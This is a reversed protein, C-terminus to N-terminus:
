RRQHGVEDVSNACLQFDADALQSGDDALELLELPRGRWSSAAPVVPSAAGGVALRAAPAFECRRRRCAVPVCAPGFDAASRRVGAGRPWVRALTSAASAAAGPLLEAAIALAAPIEGLTAAAVM